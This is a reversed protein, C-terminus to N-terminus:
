DQLLEESVRCCILNKQMVEMWRNIHGGFGERVRWKQIYCGTEQVTKGDQKNMGENRMGVGVMCSQIGEAERYNTGSECKQQHMQESWPGDKYSWADLNVNESGIYEFDAGTEEEIDLM